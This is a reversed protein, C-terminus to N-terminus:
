HCATRQSLRATAPYYMIGSQSIVKDELVDMWLVIAETNHLIFLVFASKKRTIMLVLKIYHLPSKEPVCGYLRRYYALCLSQLPPMKRTKFVDPTLLMEVDPM